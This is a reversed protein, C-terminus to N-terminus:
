ESECVLNTLPTNGGKPSAKQSHSALWDKMEAMQGSKSLEYLHKFM